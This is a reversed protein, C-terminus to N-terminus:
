PAALGNGKLVSQTDESALLILLSLAANSNAAGTSVAGAYAGANPRGPLDRALVIISGDSVAGDKALAELLVPPLVALDFDEGARIREALRDVPESVVVVKNGTRKEFSPAMAAVVPKFATAAFVKVDEAAAALAFGWGVALSALLGLPRRWGARRPFATLTHM